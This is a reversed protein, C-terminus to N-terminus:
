QEDNRKYKGFRHKLELMTEFVNKERDYEGERNKRHVITLVWAAIHKIKAKNQNM